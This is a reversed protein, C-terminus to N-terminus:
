RPQTPMRRRAADLVEAISYLTGCSVVVEEPAARRCAADLAETATSHVAIRDRSIGAAVAKEALEDATAGRGGPVTFFAWSLVRAAGGEEGTEMLARFIEPINKDRQAGFVIHRGAAPYLEDLARTLARASLPCHAGDVVVRPRSPVIEMRGPWRIREVGAAFAEWSVSWGRRRLVEWATAATRLNEMQHRGLLPLTVPLPNPPSMPSIPGTPGMRGIPDAPTQADPPSALEGLEGGPEWRTLRVRQGKEDLSLREVHFLAEAPFVPAHCQAALDLLVPIGDAQAAPSQAAIVVPIGEKIIGGKEFAIRDLTPGLLATHDLGLATIVAAEPRVVNTCDLRGGLGTELVVVDLGRRAFLDFAMATLIEFVTRYPAPDNERSADADIAGAVRGLTEAFEEESIMRGDVRFREPYDRLHPSTYTGVRLGAARLAGELLIAVSGKGKSGAVHIAPVRLHPNGMRDLLLAFRDLSYHTPSYPRATPQKEFDLRDTLYKRAEAYTVIPRNM